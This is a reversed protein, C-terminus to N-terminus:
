FLTYINEPVASEKEESQLAGLVILYPLLALRWHQGSHKAWAIYRAIWGEAKGGKRQVMSSATSTPNERARWYTANSPARELNMRSKAWGAPVCVMFFAIKLVLAEALAAYFRAVKNWARYPWVLWRPAIMGAACLLAVAATLWLWKAGYLWALAAVLLTALLCVAALFSRLWARQLNSPLLLMPM